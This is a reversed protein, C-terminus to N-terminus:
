IRSIPSATNSLASALRKREPEPAAYLAKALTYARENLRFLELMNNNEARDRSVISLTAIQMTLLGAILILLIWSPLSQPLFRKMRHQSGPVFQYGGGRITLILKPSRSDDEMKRRLRSILIDVSRDYGYAANSGALELLQDRSLM